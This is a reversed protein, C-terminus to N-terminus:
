APLSRRLPILPKPIAETIPRMRKGRGGALIIATDIMHRQDAPRSHLM